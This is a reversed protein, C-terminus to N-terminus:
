AAIGFPSLHLFADDLVPRTFRLFFTEAVTLCPPPKSVREGYQVCGPSHLRGVGMAGKIM